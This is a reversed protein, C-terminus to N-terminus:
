GGDHARIREAAKIEAKVAALRDLLLDRFSTDRALPRSVDSTGPFGLTPAGAQPMLLAVIGIWFLARFLM